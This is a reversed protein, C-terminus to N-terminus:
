SLTAAPQDSLAGSLPLIQHNTRNKKNSRWFPFWSCTDQVKTKPGKVVPIPTHNSSPQTESEVAGYSLPLILTREENLLAQRLTHVDDDMVSLKKSDREQYNVWTNVATTIGGLAAILNLLTLLTRSTVNCNESGSLMLVLFYTVALFFSLAGGIGIGAILAQNFRKIGHIIVKDCDPKHSPIRQTIV